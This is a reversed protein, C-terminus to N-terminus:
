ASVAPFLPKGNNVAMGGDSALQRLLRMGRLREWGARKLKLHFFRLLM